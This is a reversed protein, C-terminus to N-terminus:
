LCKPVLSFRFLQWAEHTALREELIGKYPGEFHRRDGTVSVYRRSTASDDFRM